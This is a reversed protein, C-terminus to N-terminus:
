YPIYFQHFGEFCVTVEFDVINTIEIPKKIWYRIKEQCHATIVNRITPITPIIDPGKLLIISFPHISNARINLEIIGEIKNPM